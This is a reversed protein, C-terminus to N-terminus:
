NSDARTFFSALDTGFSHGVLVAHDYGWADLLVQLDRVHRAITHNGVWPSEGTGRQDYRHVGCSDTVTEAVPELNAPLGPGGHLMVLRPTGAAANGATWTRLRAGDDM